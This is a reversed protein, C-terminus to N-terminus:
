TQHFSQCVPREFFTIIIFDPVHNLIIYITEVSKIEINYIREESIMSEM